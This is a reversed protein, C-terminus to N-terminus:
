WDVFMREYQEIEDVTALRVEAIVIKGNCNMPSTCPIPTTHMRSEWTEGCATCTYYNRVGNM